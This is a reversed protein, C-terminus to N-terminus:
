NPRMDPLLWLRELEATEAGAIQRRLSPGILVHIYATFAAGIATTVAEDLPEKLAAQPLGKANLAVVGVSRLKRATFEEPGIQESADWARGGYRLTLFECDTNSDSLLVMVAISAHQIVDAAREIYTQM